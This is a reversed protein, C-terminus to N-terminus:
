MDPEPMWIKEIPITQINNVLGNLAHKWIM